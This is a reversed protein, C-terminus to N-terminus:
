QFITSLLKRNRLMHHIVYIVGATMNRSPWGLAYEISTNHKHMTTYSHENACARGLSAPWRGDLTNEHMDKLLQDQEVLAWGLLSRDRAGQLCRLFECTSENYYFFNGTVLKLFITKYLYFTTGVDSFIGGWVDTVGWYLVYSWIKVMCYKRDSHGM